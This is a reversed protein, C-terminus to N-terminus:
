TDQQCGVTIRRLSEIKKSFTDKALEVWSYSTSDSLCLRSKQKIARCNRLQYDEKVTDVFRLIDILDRIGKIENKTFVEVLLRM